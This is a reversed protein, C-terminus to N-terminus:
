HKHPLQLTKPKKHVAHFMARRLQKYWYNLMWDNAIEFAPSIFEYYFDRHMEAYFKDLNERRSQIEFFIEEIKLNHRKM